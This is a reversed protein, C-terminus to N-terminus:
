EKRGTFIKPIGMSRVINIIISLIALFSLGIIFLIVFGFNDQVVPLNGFFYGAMTFACVWLVGGIINYILFHSYEMKGVGAFFPAFTRVFPVFRAIIITVGGYKEFYSHTKDIYEQRIFRVHHDLLEKGTFRGIWYNVTDGLIAAITLLILIAWLDLVGNAALTGCVFLLSDGPLYPFVVIGTECFIIVFLIGYIWVGYTLIIAPLYQDFHLVLSIISTFPDM